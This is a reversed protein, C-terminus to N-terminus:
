SAMVYRCGAEQARLAAFIGNPQLIVGPIMLETARPRAADRELKEKKGIEEVLMGFAWNCALVIGGGALFTELRYKAMPGSADAGAASIPNVKSWKGKSDKIKHQKGVEYREWYENSMILPIASHRFVVVPSMDNREAGYVEKYMDCWAVARVLAAGDSIDPSDFVARYKGTVRDVWTMNWTDTLPLAHGANAGPEVASAVDPLGIAGLISTGGLLGVFRRRSSPM